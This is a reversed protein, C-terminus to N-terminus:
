RSSSPMSRSFRTRMRALTRYGVRAQGDAKGAGRRLKFPWEIGIPRSHEGRDVEYDLRNCIRRNWGIGTAEARDLDVPRLPREDIRTRRGRDVAAGDGHLADAIRDEARQNLRHRIPDRRRRAPHCPDNYETSLLVAMTKDAGIECSAARAALRIASPTSESSVSIEFVM